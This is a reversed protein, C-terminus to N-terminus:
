ATPHPTAPQPSPLLRLNHPTPHPLLAQYPTNPQALRVRGCVLQGADQQRQWHTTSWGGAQGRSAWATCSDNAGNTSCSRLHPGRSVGM